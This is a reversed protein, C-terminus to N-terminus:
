THKGVKGLDGQRAALVEALTPQAGTGGAARTSLSGCLVGFELCEQLPLRQLCAYIFGADFSDGAGTTDVVRVPISGVRTVEAGRQAIAGEKGLKIAVLPIRASLRALAEEITALGTISLAEAENPLLIDVQSLCKQLGSDWRNAPDWGTDLSVTAGAARAAALLAPLGAQLRPQLFYSAVHIHRAQALWAPDIAASDLAAITGPYTLLARDGANTLSLTAGTKLQALRAVLATDVGHEALAQLMYRGFTDEGVVSVLGTRLGLQAAQCAFISASGGITLTLDEVLKEQGYVPTPDEARLILDVNAEGLVLLDLKKV